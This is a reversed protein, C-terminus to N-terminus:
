RRSIKQFLFSVFIGLHIFGLIMEAITISWFTTFSPKDKMTLVEKASGGNGVDDLQYKPDGATGQQAAFFTAASHRLWDDYQYCACAAEKHCLKNSDYLAGFLAVWLFMALAIRWFGGLVINFYGEPIGGFLLKPVFATRSILWRRGSDPQFSAYKLRWEYWRLKNIVEAEEQFQDYHRYIQRLDDAIEVLANYTQHTRYGKEKGKGVIKQIDRNLEAFRRGVELRSSTGVFACEATVEMRHQIALAELSLALTKDQLLHRAEHALLAAHVAAVASKADRELRRARVLLAEAIQQMRHPASHSGSVIRARSFGHGASEDNAVRIIDLEPSFMGGYPKMVSGLRPGKSIPLPMASVVLRRANSYIAPFQQERNRLVDLAGIGSEPIAILYNAQDRGYYDGFKLELDEMIAWQGNANGGERSMVRLMEEHSAIVWTARHNRHLIYGNLITFSAEEDMAIGFRDPKPDARKPDPCLIRRFGTPDFWARFGQAHQVVLPLLGCISDLTVFHAADVENTVFHAADVENHIGPKEKELFVWYIEPYRLVLETPRLPHKDMTAPNDTASNGETKPVKWAPGDDATLDVICMANLIERRGLADLRTHLDEACSATVVNEEPFHHPLQPGLFLGLVKALSQSTTKHRSAVLLVPRGFPSTM